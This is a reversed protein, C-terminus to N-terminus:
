TWVTEIMQQGGKPPDSKAQSKPLIPTMGTPPAGPTSVLRGTLPSPVFWMLMAVILMKLDSAFEQRDLLGTKGAVILAVLCMGLAALFAWVKM